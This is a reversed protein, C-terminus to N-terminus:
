INYLQEIMIQLSKYIKIEWTRIIIINSYLTIITIYNNYYKQLNVNQHGVQQVVVTSFGFQKFFFMYYFMSIAINERIGLPLVEM